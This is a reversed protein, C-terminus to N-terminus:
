PMAEPVPEGNVWVTTDGSVYDELGIEAQFTEIVQICLEEPDYVSYAEVQIKGQADPPSVTVRLKHCPDPLTGLLYLSYSASATMPASIASEEVIVPGSELRADGPAPSWDKSSLMPSMSDLAGEGAVPNPSDAPPTSTVPLPYVGSPSIIQPTPYSQDPPTNVVEDGGACAALLTSALIVIISVRWYYRSTSNELMKVEM